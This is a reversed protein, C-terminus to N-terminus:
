DIELLKFRKSAADDDGPEDASAGAPRPAAGAAAPAPRAPPAPPNV